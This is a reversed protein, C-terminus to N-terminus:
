KYRGNRICDWLEMGAPCDITPPSWTNQSRLLEEAQRDMAANHLFAIFWLLGLAVLLTALAVLFLPTPRYM